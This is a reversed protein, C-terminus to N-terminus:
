QVVFGTFFVSEVKSKPFLAKVEDELRVRLMEKGDASSLQDLQYSSLLLILSNQIIPTNVRLKELTDEDRTMLSLTVQLYRLSGNHEFNVVLPSLQYYLPPLDEAVEEAEGETGEETVGLLDDLMGTFYLGAGGGGLVALAVVILVINKM